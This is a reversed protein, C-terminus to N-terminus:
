SISLLPQKDFNFLCSLEKFASFEFLQVELFGEKVLPLSDLGSRLRGINDCGRVLWYIKGQEECVSVDHAMDSLYDNWVLHDGDNLFGYLAHVPFGYQVSLSIM